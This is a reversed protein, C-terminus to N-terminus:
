KKTKPIQYILMDGYTYTPGLNIIDLRPQKRRNYVTFRGIQKPDQEASWGPPLTVTVVGGSTLYPECTSQMKKPLRPIFRDPM